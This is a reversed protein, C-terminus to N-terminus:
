AVGLCDEDDGTVCVVVVGSSRCLRVVEAGVVNLGVSSGAGAMANSHSWRSGLWVADDGMLPQCTDYGCSRRYTGYIEVKVSVTSVPWM